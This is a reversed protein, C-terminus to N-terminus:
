KKTEKTEVNADEETPAQSHQENLKERIGDSFHLGEFHDELAFLLDQVTPYNEIIQGNRLGESVEEKTADRKDLVKMVSFYKGEGFQVVDGKEKDLIEEFGPIVTDKSMQGRNMSVSGDKEWEERLKDLDEDTKAKTLKDKVNQVLKNNDEYALPDIIANELVVIPYGDKTVQEIQKDSIKILENYVTQIQKSFRMQKELQKEEGKSLKEGQEELFKKYGTFDKEYDLDKYYADLVKELVKDKLEYQYEADSDVFDEVDGDRYEKGNILTVNSGTKDSGKKDEKGGTFSWVIAGVLAVAFVIAVWM